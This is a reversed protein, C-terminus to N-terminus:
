LNKSYLKKENLKNPQNANGNIFKVVLYSFIVLDKEGAKKLTKIAKKAAYLSKFNPMPHSSVVYKFKKLKRKPEEDSIVLVEKTMSKLIKETAEAM